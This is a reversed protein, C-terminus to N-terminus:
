PKRSRHYENWAKLALNYEESGAQLGYHETLATLFGQKDNMQLLDRMDQRRESRERLAEEDPLRTKTGRTKEERIVRALEERKKASEGTM